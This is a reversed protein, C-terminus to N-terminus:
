VPELLQGMVDCELQMWGAVIDGKQRQVKVHAWRRTADFGLVEVLAGPGLRV